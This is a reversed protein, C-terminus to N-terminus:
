TLWSSRGTSRTSAPPSPSMRKVVREDIGEQVKVSDRARLFVLDRREVVAAQDGEWVSQIVDEDYRARVGRAPDVYGYRREIHVVVKEDGEKGKITVDRIGEVCAARAGDLCLRSSLSPNFTVSGGAWLRRTFLTPAPPSHLTDTGDPLLGHYPIAPPFYVLHHGQHLPYPGIPPPSQFTFAVGPLIPNSADFYKPHCSSPLFDRLSINLLHSPTPSLYDYTVNLPRSTLEHPLSSLTSSHRLYTLPSALCASSYIHQANRITPRLKMVISDSFSLSHPEHNHIKLVRPDGLSVKCSSRIAILSASVPLIKRSCTYCMSAYGTSLAGIMRSPPAELSITKTAQRGLKRAM